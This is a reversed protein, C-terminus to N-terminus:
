SIVKIIIKEFKQAIKEVYFNEEAFKRANNGMENLENKSGYLETIADALFKSDGPPIVKGANIEKTIKAALNNSPVVLLSARGACFSSWVKSPVSFIGAEPELLTLTCDASGLVQPFLEFPQFDLLRINSLKKENLRKNLHERGAGQTVIVFIINKNNSLLQAANYIIDPNHKMGMTGSYLIVFKNELEYEQSFSNSKTQLPIEEIPAWNPIAIIKDKEVGWNEVIVNFDAAITIVYDSGILIKKEIKQYFKAVASGILGLKKKLINAAAISIIDQLWFIFKVDNSKCWKYVELQADLPTNASIIVDPRIQNLHDVLIRGYLKEQKRRKLFNQKAVSETQINVVTLNEIDFDFGAKPGGSSTTYIHTVFHGNKALQKSLDIQFPHGAYDHIVINKKM